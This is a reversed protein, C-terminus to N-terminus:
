LFSEMILFVINPKSINLISITTDKRIKHMDITIEEAEKQSMSIFINSNSIKETKLINYVLNWGTNVSIDNVIDYKSFYSQSQSIPIEQIGGRMGIFILGATIIIIIPSLWKNVVSKIKHMNNRVLYKYIYLSIVFLLIFLLVQWISDSTKNSEIIESPRKLYELAKSNLKMKWEPYM